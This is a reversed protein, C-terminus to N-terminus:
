WTMYQIAGHSKTADVVKVGYEGLYRQKWADSGDPTSTDIGWEM